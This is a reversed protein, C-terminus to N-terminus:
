AGAGAIRYVRGREEQSAVIALGLKKKLAGSFVGRVTHPQWGTAARVEDVTVGEPRRLLAIVEAQKSPRPPPPDPLAQLASWLRDVLAERDGLKRLRDVGPLGNWLALLRKGSLRAARLEDLSAVVIHNEGPEAPVARSVILDDATILYVRM